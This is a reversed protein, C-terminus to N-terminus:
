KGLLGTILSTVGGAVGGGLAGLLAVRAKLGAVEERLKGVLVFLDRKDRKLEDVAEGIKGKWEGLNFHNWDSKNDGGM